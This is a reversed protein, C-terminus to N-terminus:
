NIVDDCSIQSKFLSFTNGFEEIPLIKFAYDTIQVESTENVYYPLQLLYM